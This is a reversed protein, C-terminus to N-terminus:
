TDIPCATPVDSLGVKASKDNVVRPIVLVVVFSENNIVVVSSELVAAGTM